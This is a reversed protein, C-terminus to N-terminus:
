GIEVTLGADFAPNEVEDNVVYGRANCLVRTRGIRYDFSDHTHGHVWLAACGNGILEDLDSVFFPNLPSDAFRAAISGSSPAFHTVVVTEGDFPEALRAELWNRHRAFLQACATPSFMRNGAEDAAIRSFDRSFSRAQEMARKRAPGDGLLRFDSWLTAGLVRVRGFRKEGCNLVTVTSDRSLEVLRRDTAALSSGYYEHDGPVYVIPMDLDTAWRLAETPRHIDGALVLLDAGVDPISCPARSLHIDSAIQIKM